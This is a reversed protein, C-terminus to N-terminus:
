TRWAQAAREGRCSARSKPPNPHSIPRKICKPSLGTAEAFRWPTAIIMLPDDGDRSSWAVETAM